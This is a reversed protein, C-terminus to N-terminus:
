IQYSQFEFYGSFHEAELLFAVSFLSLFQYLLGGFHLRFDIVDVHWILRDEPIQYLMM